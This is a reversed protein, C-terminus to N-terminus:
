CGVGKLEYGPVVAFVGLALSMKQRIQGTKFAPRLHQDIVEIQQVRILRM